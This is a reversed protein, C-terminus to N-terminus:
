VAVLPLLFDLHKPFTPVEQVAKEEVAIQKTVGFLKALLFVTTKLICYCVVQHM